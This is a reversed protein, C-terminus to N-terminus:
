DKEKLALTRPREVWSGKGDPVVEIVDAKSDSVSTIRGHNKGVYNGVTVRHIGGGGDNILSWFQGDKSLIGVLSLAAFNYSELYERKRGKDPAPVKESGTVSDTLALALPPEFPSRMAIAGYRFTKYARFTPLPEIDGVPKAKADAMFRQLDEHQGGGSCGSLIVFGVIVFFLRTMKTM